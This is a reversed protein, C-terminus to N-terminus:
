EICSHKFTALNARILRDLYVNKGDLPEPYSELVGLMDDTSLNSRLNRLFLNDNKSLRKSELLQIPVIGGEIYYIGNDLDQVSFGHEHKLSKVAERPFM